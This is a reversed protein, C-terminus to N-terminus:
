ERICVYVFASPGPVPTLGRFMAPSPVADHRRKIRLTGATCVGSALFDHPTAAFGRKPADDKSDWALGPWALDREIAAEYEPRGGFIRVLDRGSKPLPPL